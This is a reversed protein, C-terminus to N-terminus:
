VKRLLRRFHGRKEIECLEIEEDFKRQFDILVEALKYDGKNLAQRIGDELEKFIKKVYLCADGPDLKELHPELKDEIFKSIGGKKLKKLAERTKRSLSITVVKHGGEEVPRGRYPSLEYESDYFEYM